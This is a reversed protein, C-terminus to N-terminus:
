CDLNSTSEHWFSFAAGDRDNVDFDKITLCPINVHRRYKKKM